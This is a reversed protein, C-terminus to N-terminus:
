CIIGEILESPSIELAKAIKILNLFSINREGREVSSIYTRHLMSRFALEEQSIGLLTRAKKISEGLLKLNTDM